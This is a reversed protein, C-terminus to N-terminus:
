LFLNLFYHIGSIHEDRCLSGRQEALLLEESAMQVSCGFKESVDRASFGSSERWNKAQTESRIWYLLRQLAQDLGGRSEVIKLGSELVRVRLPLDLPECFNLADSFEQPSVLGLGRCRNYLSYAEHLTLMGGAQALLEDHGILLDALQRALTASNRSDAGVVQPLQGKSSVSSLRDAIALIDPLGNKFSEISESADELKVQSENNYKRSKAQLSRIGFSAQADTATGGRETSHGKDATAAIAPRDPFAAAATRLDDWTRRLTEHFLHSKGGRFSLKVENGLTCLQTTEHKLPAGCMECVNLSPHNTFTCQKCQGASRPSTDQPASSEVYVTDGQIAVGCVGCKDADLSNSFSCISCIWGKRSLQNSFDGSIAHEQAALTLKIKASSTFLRPTYAVQEVQRLDVQVSNLIPNLSDVYIFRQSTIIATGKAQETSKFDGDYIGVNDVSLILTECSKLKPSASPTM